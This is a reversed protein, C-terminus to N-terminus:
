AFIWPGLLVVAIAITLNDSDAPSISEVGTAALSILTVPLLYNTWAGPLVGASVFVVLILMTLLWGGLFFALSGIWSKNGNWPLKVRGWRRGVIDALGDGGCILMLATIGLPSDLWYLQTLAVFVVGYFLPGRLIERPDGTRSMAAVAAPDKIIGLGVLLFQLTIALPVLSALYRAYAADSFLLWCLVFLPGTGIHIIKRSLRGDIWGRHAAYDMIRLWALAAFLTAITAAIDRLM